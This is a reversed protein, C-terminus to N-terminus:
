IPSIDDQVAKVLCIPIFATYKLGFIHFNFIKHDKKNLNEVKLIFTSFADKLHNLAYCCSVLLIQIKTTNTIM